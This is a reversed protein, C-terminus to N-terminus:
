HGEDPRRYAALSLYIDHLRGVQSRLADLDGDNIILDDAAAMRDDCSAQTRMIAEVEAATLHDRSIVRATRVPEAADVVLVRDVLHALGHEVLLPIELICYAAGTARSRAELLALIRPHTMAELRARANPDAFVRTRLLDRRLEGDPGALEPGFEALIERWAPTQPAVVERAIADASHVPVGREAFLRAVTSKGSGIGGTLGIRM